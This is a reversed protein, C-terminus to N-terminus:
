DDRDGVDEEGRRVALRDIRTDDVDLIELSHGHVEVVEGPEPVRALQESVYGGVTTEHHGELEFGLRDALGRVPAQGDVVLGGNEERIEARVEPDFEDEIEGVLEELIDEMTLLGIVTGHEDHVLGLHLRSARMTRLVEDLRSSESIHGLSRVIDSVELAEGDDFRLPLLDKANVVGVAEELGGDPECIPLRTRGTDIARQAIGQASDSTLVYDVEGRPRMAERARMDGFVLAAESLEQEETEILGGESSERLLTRIEEESHPQSGVESAPPVGFPKLVLNGMGNFLDVLPKTAFYFGRMLPAMVLVVRETRAIALSKPSLEGLVVHLTTIILFAVAGALGFGAIKASDGLLPELLEHFAPEGLAGLGLSAMTIGLQCASLYADIHGVAHAVSKAGPKRQRLLEDVQTPRLRTVAFETAVFFGNAAVLVVALVLEIAM